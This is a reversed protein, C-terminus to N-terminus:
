EQIATQNCLSGAACDKCDSEEDRMTFPQWTTEPCENPETDGEPCYHGAPCEVSSGDELCYYGAPCDICDDESAAGRKTCTITDCNDETMEDYETYVGSPDDFYFALTYTSEPCQTPVTTGYECYFGGPCLDNDDEDVYYNSASSGSLCFYGADCINSYDLEGDM